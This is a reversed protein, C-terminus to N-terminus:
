SSVVFFPNDFRGDRRYMKGTRGGCGRVGYGKDEGEDALAEVEEVCYDAGDGTGDRGVFGARRSDGRFVGVAPCDVDAADVVGGDGVPEAFDGELEVFGVGVAGACDVRGAGKFDGFGSPSLEFNTYLQVKDRFRIFLRLHQPM